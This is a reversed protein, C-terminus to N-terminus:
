CNTPFLARLSFIPDNTQSNAGLRKTAMYEPTGVLAGVELARSIFLIIKAAEEPALKGKERQVAM